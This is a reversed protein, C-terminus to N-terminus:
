RLLIFRAILFTIPALLFVNLLGAVEAPIGLDLWVKLLTIGGVYYVLYTIPFKAMKKISHTGRFTFKLNLLYSSMIGMVFSINFAWFPADLTWYLTVFYLYTLVTNTG